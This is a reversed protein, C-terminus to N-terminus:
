LLSYTLISNRLLRAGIYDFGVGKLGSWFILGHLRKLAGQGGSNWSAERVFSATRGQKSM